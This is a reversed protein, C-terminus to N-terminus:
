GGESEGCSPVLHIPSLPKSLSYKLGVFFHSTDSESPGDNNWVISRFTGDYWGHRGREVDVRPLDVASVCGTIVLLYGPAAERDSLQPRVLPLM